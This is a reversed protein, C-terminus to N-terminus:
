LNSTCVCGWVVLAVCWGCVVVCAAVVGWALGVVVALVVDSGDEDLGAVVVGITLEVLVVAGGDDVVSGVVVFRALVVVVVASGDEVVSGV